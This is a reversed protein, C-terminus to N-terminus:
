APELRLTTPLVLPVLMDDLSSGKRYKKRYGDSTRKVSDADTAVTARVPIRQGKLVVAGPRAVLERYWRSTPGRYARIFVDDGDVVIWIPVSHTTGKPSQTEIDVEDTRDLLAITAKPFNM